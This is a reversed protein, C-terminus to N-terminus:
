LFKAEPLVSLTKSLIVDIKGNQGIQVVLVEFFESHCRESM